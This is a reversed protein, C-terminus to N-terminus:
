THLFAKWCAYSPMAFCIHKVGGDGTSFYFLAAPLYEPKPTMTGPVFGEWNGLPILQVTVIGKCRRSRVPIVGTERNEPLHRCRFCTNFWYFQIM